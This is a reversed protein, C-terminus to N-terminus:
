YCYDKIYRSRSPHRIKRVAKNSIERVMNRSVGYVSKIEDLSHFEGDYMGFRMQLIESERDSLTGLVEEVGQIMHNFCVVDFPDETEFNPIVFWKDKKVKRQGVLSKICSELTSHVRASKQKAPAKLYSENTCIYEILCLYVSQVFDEDNKFRPALKEIKKAVLYSYKDFDQMQIDTM